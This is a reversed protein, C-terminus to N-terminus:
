DPPRAPMHWVQGYASCLCDIFHRARPPFGHEHYEGLRAHVRRGFDKPSNSISDGSLNDISLRFRSGAAIHFAWEIAQPKEEAREFARQEEENRGDPCYWYGYDILRRRRAGAICWHAVEHLASAFYNRTFVIHHCRQEASAPRYLPEEGGAILLTNHSSKFCANFLRVLDDSDHHM